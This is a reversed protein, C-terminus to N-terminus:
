DRKIFCLTAELLLVALYRISISPINGKPITTYMNIFLKGLRASKARLGLSDLHNNDIANV